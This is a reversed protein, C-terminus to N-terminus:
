GDVVPRACSLSLEGALSRREVVTGRLWCLHSLWVIAWPRQNEPALFTPSIGVPDGWDPRWIFTPYTLVAIKSWLKFKLLSHEIERERSHVVSTYVCNGL